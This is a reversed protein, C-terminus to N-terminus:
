FPIDDDGFPGQGRRRQARHDERDSWDLERPRRDPEDYRREDEERWLGADEMWDPEPPREGPALGQKWEEGELDEDDEFGALEEDLEKWKTEDPDWEADNAVAMDDEFEDDFIDELDPDYQDDDYHWGANSPHDPDTPFIDFSFGAGSCNATPCMWFGAFGHPDGIVRQFWM